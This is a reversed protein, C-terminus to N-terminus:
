DESLGDGKQPQVKGPEPAQTRGGKANVDIGYTDYTTALAMGKMGTEFGAPVIGAIFGPVELTGMIEGNQVDYAVVAGPDVAVEEGAEELGEGLTGLGGGAGVAAEAEAQRQDAPEDGEVAAGDEGVAEAGALAPARRVVHYALAQEIRM